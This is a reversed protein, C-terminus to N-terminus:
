RYAIVFTRTFPFLFRGDPRKDYSQAVRAAFRDVFLQREADGDLAELFPRLGTSSIWDVIAWASEMVHFYTTEWLDIRRADPALADYYTEPREMTLATLPATMRAAWQPDRAVEAMLVRVLAYEDSPIQFALAGGPAVQALLRPALAPHDGVWQLAANSFVVDFPDSPSWSELDGVLWEGEPHGERAAEIMEPSSDLGVVRAHPWRSRLVETSNGPGCGLDIVSAPDDVAIRTALDVAPRTREDGFRLYHDPNWATM